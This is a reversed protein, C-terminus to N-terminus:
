GERRNTSGGAISIIYRRLVVNKTVQSRHDEQVVSLRTRISALEGNSEQLTDRVSEYRRLSDSLEANEQSLRQNRERLVNLENDISSVSERFSHVDSRLQDRDSKAQQLAERLLHM